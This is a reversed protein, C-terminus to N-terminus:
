YCLGRPARPGGAWGDSLDGWGGTGSEAQRTLFDAALVLARPRHREVERWVADPVVVAGFDALLDLCGLEDLHILPGADAVVTRDIPAM